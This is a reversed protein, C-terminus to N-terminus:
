PRALRSGQVLDDSASEVPRGAPRGLPCLLMRGRGGTRFLQCHGDDTLGFAEVPSPREGQRILRYVPGHHAAVARKVDDLLPPTTAHLGFFRTREPFFPLVYSVEPGDVLVAAPPDSPALPVTVRLSQQWEIRGWSGARSTVVVVAGLITWAVVLSREPLLWRLLALIVVPALFEGVAFYRYYHFAVAWTAYAALWCVLVAGASAPASGARRRRGLGVLTAVLAAVLVVHRVDHATIEILRQTRGLALELPPAILDLWGRAVWKPDGAVTTSVYPSQFLNNAFPFLPNGFRAWLKAAWYGGALGYGALGGAAFVPLLPASRLAVALWAATTGLAVAYVVFTLKLAVAAGGLLGAAFVRPYRRDRHDGVVVLLLLSGLVLISPLNDGFSTGLLSVACPGSAAVAAALAALWLESRLGRAVRRALHWVLFTNLGQVAALLFAYARPRQWALGLYTPVQLLPNFFSGLGAPAIDVDFRGALLSWGLYVHYQAQDFNADQGLWLALVGSGLTALALLALDAQRARSM